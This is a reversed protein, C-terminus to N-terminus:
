EKLACLRLVLCVGMSSGTDSFGAAEAIVDGSLIDRQKHRGNGTGLLANLRPRKLTRIM